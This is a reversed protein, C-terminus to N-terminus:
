LVEQKFEFPSKGTIQKFVRNFYSANEFSLSYAIQSVPLNSTILLTQAKEIRKNNIYNIPTNHMEKKFLRIFHDTSLHCISALDKITIANGLNEGIYSISSLIRPDTTTFQSTAESVFRSLLQHIIGNSEMLKHLPMHKSEVVNRLLYFSNDYATPDYHSLDRMPNIEHLRSFLCLDIDKSPVEFPFNLQEFLSYPQAHDEYIHLYYLSFKGSCSDSHLQFPPILYLHDKKLDYTRNYISVNAIGETIYYIRAFPSKINEYNWNANHNAVGINLLILKSNEISLTSKVSAVM